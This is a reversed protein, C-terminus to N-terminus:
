APPPRRLRTLLPKLRAYAATAGDIPVRWAPGYHRKASMWIVIDSALGRRHIYRSFYPNPDSRYNWDWIWVALGSKMLVYPLSLQDRRTARALEEWWLEMAPGLGPAAHRRFIIANETLRHARPLGEALYRAVQAEGAAVDGPPIKGVRAGFALEEFIDGREKHPFLGIDAGSARFEAILPSLDATVLLNADVYISVDAEPFIRQPFFKCYRNVLSPSLGRTAEPFPRHEWGRVLRPRRDSFLVFPVGPTAAVPTFIQDYALDACTYLVTKM